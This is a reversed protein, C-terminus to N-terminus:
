GSPVRFTSGVKSTSLTASATSNRALRGNSVFTSNIFMIAVFIGKTPLPYPPYKWDNKVRVRRLSGVARARERSPARWLRVQLMQSGDLSRQTVAIGM